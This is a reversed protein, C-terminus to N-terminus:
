LYNGEIIFTSPCQSYLIEGWAPNRRLAGAQARRVLALWPPARARPTRILLRAAHCAYRQRGEAMLTDEIIGCLHRERERESARESALARASEREGGKREAILTDEIM